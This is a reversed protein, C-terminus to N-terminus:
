AIREKERDNIADNHQAWRHQRFIEHAPRATETEGTEKALAVSLALLIYLPWMYSASLFTGAVSFGALGAALAIGVAKLREDTANSDFRALTRFGNRLTVAVLAVFAFLGPFGIEGLVLFWISHATYNQKIWVPTFFIYESEFNNFGVGTLPRTLAMNLGAQWSYLRTTAAESSGAGAAGTLRDSIGMAAYLAVAVFAGVCLVLTKSKVKRIAIVGAVAVVGLLGGRSQTFVIAPVILIAGVM